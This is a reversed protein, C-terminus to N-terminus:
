RQTIRLTQGTSSEAGTLFLAAATVDGVDAEAGLDIAGIRMEPAAAVALPGVSALLMARDLDPVNSEIVLLVVGSADRVAAVSGVDEATRPFLLAARGALAEELARKM